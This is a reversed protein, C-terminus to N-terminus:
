GCSFQTPRRANQGPELPRDGFAITHHCVGLLLEFLIHFFLSRGFSFVASRFCPHHHHFPQFQCPSPKIVMKSISSTQRTLLIRSDGRGGAHAMVVSAEGGPRPASREDTSKEVPWIVGTKAKSIFTERFMAAVKPTGKGSAAPCADRSAHAMKSPTLNQRAFILPSLSSILDFLM